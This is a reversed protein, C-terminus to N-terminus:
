VYIPLETCTDLMRLSYVFMSGVPGLFTFLMENSASWTYLVLILIYPQGTILLDPPSRTYTASVIIFDVVLNVATAM